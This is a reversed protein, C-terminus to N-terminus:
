VCEMITKSGSCRQEQLRITSMASGNKESHVGVERNIILDHIVEEM